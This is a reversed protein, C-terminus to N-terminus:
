ILLINNVICATQSEIRIACVKSYDKIIAGKASKFEVAKILLSQWVNAGQLNLKAVFEETVGNDYTMLIVDVEASEMCYADMKVLSSENITLYTNNVKYSVLGYKSCVGYISAAGETLFLYDSDNFFLGCSSYKKVDYVGFSGTKDKSSYLLKNFKPTLKNIKKHQIKSCITIGNKYEVLVFVLIFTANSTIDYIFNREMESKGHKIETMLNWDRFAPNEVGEAIYVEVRKARKTDSFNIETKVKVRGGEVDISLKPEVPFSIKFDLLCKALFLEVNRSCCKDLVDTHRPAFCNYREIDFNFTEPVRVLTDASRDVDFEASNTATLYLVPCKVNQAYAQSEVGALFRVREETLLIDDNESYKFVDKYARWGCGFMAVFCDVRDDSGALMWGVNAGNKVGIVGIKGNEPQSQLFTLAYKCVGVWEYWATDIATNDCYDIARGSLEYNAHSICEPYLTYNETESNVGRYDVMLVNYGQKLYLNVLDRNITEKYDGIILLAGKKAGRKGNLKSCAYTAFISVRGQGTERGLFRIDRWIFNEGIEECIVTERLPLDSVFDKWLMQPSYIVNNAM